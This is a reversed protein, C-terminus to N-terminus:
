EMGIDVFFDKEKSETKENVNVDADRKRKRRLIKTHRLGPRLLIRETTTKTCYKCANLQVM